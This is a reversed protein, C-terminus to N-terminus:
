DRYKVNDFIIKIGIVILIAPWAYSIAKWLSTKIINNSILYLLAAFGILITGPILPWNNGKKIFEALYIGYFSLGLLFFFSWSIDEPYLSSVLTYIGISPLLFGPFVFGVIRKTYYLALFVIGLGFLFVFGTLDTKSPFLDDIMSTAGVVIIIMGAILSWTYRRNFYIVLFSLGVLILLANGSLLDANLLFVVVGILILIIGILDNNRKVM